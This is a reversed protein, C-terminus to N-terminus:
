VNRFLHFECTSMSILHLINPPVDGCLIQINHRDLSTFPVEYDAALTHSTDHLFVKLKRANLSHHIVWSSLSTGISCSGITVKAFLPTKTLNIENKRFRMSVNIM